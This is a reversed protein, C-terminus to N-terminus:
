LINQNKRSLDQYTTKKKLRFVSEKKLEPFNKAKLKEFVVRGEIKNKNKEKTNRVLCINLNRDKIYRLRKTIKM